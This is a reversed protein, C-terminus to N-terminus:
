LSKASATRGWRGFYAESKAILGPSEPIIAAATM